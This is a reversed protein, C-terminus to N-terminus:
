TNQSKFETSIIKEFCQCRNKNCNQSGWSDLKVFSHILSSLCQTDHCMCSVPFNLVALQTEEVASQDTRFVQPMSLRPM